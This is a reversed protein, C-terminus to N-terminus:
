NYGLVTEYEHQCNGYKQEETTSATVLERVNDNEGGPLNSSDHSLESNLVHFSNNNGSESM